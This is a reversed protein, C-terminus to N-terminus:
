NHVYLETMGSPYFIVRGNGSYGMSNFDPLERDLKVTVSGTNGSTDGTVNIVKYTLIPYNQTISSVSGSQGFFLVAFDGEQTNGTM